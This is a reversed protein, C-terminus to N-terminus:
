MLLDNKRKIFAFIIQNYGYQQSVAEMIPVYVRAVAAPFIFFMMNNM